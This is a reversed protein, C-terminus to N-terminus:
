DQENSIIDKAERVDGSTFGLSYFKALMKQWTERSAFAEKGGYKRLVDAASAAFDYKAIEGDFGNEIVEKSFGKKFLENKIRIRGYKKRYLAEIVRSMYEDERIYRKGELYDAAFAASEKSIGKGVLKRVMGRKTTDSYDLLYLGRKVAATNASATLIEKLLEDSIVDGTSLKSILDGYYETMLPLRADKQMDLSLVLIATSNDSSYEIKKLVSTQM